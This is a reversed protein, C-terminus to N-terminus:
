SESLPVALMSGGPMEEMVRGRIAVLALADDLSFVGSICAAVYEGVSHGLLGKPRIGWNMLLRATAYEITFLAPQTVRTRTLRAAAAEDNGPPPYLAERLDFGLHPTLRDCCDDVHARFERENRYLDLGMNVYQTGQGSFLFALPRDAASVTA